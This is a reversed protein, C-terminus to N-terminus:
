GLMRNSEVQVIALLFVWVPHTKKNAAQTPTSGVTEQNLTLHRVMQGGPLVISLKGSISSSKM